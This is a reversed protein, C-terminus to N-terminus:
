GHRPAVAPALAPGGRAAGRLAAAAPGRGHGSLVKVVDLPQNGRGARAKALHVRNGDVDEVGQEDAADVVGVLDLPRHRLEDGVHGALGPDGDGGLLDPLKAVLDLRCVPGLVALGERIELRAVVVEHAIQDRSHEVAGLGLAKEVLDAVEFHAHLRGHDDHAGGERLEEGLGLAGALAHQQNGVDVQRRRVQFRRTASM